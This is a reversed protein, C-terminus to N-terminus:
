KRSAPIPGLGMLAPEVGASAAALVRALPRWGLAQARGATTLLLCAAGDNLPSSNGATVTGEAEFAPKLAALKEMTTDRRPGEDGVVTDAGPRPVPILERQFHCAEQAAVARRHSELAFRDQEERTIGLRRAVMEATQGLSITHERPMQPNVMRL